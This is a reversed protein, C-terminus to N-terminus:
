RMGQWTFLSRRFQDYLRDFDAARTRLRFRIQEEAFNCVITTLKFPQGFATYSVTLRYTPHRNLLVPNPEPEAWEIKEAERPLSRRMEEMLKGLTEADVTVKGALSRAEILAEASSAGPVLRLQGGGGQLTWGGPPAYIVTDPGNSFATQLVRVGEFDVAHQLPTFDIGAHAAAVSLLVLGILQIRPVM